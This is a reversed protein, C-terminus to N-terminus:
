DAVTKGVKHFRKAGEEPTTAEIAIYSSRNNSLRSLERYSEEAYPHDKKGKPTKVHIATLFIGNTKLYDAMALPSLGTKATKDDAGLPGADTVLLIIKGDVQDWSLKDVAEKVGALSDEDFAHTSAKCEQLKELLQELKAREHVTAFDSVVLTNYETKPRIEPNSRFAVVAFAIQEKAESNQLRDFINRIIEKTQEIYPKMSITTDVVFVIGTRMGKNPTKTEEQKPLDKKAEPVGPDLCAVELLQTGFKSFQRDLSLVPLLYFDKQSVQGDKELPETAIVPCDQPLKVNKTNFLTVYQEVTDKINETTCLEELDKHKQFFLVPQRGLQDTFVMTIAQPWETAESTKLWGSAETSSVGVRLMEDTRKYVYFSTFTRPRGVEIQAQPDAYLVAGPNSVVRQFVTRKGEKLLPKDALAMCALGLEACFLLSLVLLVLFRQGLRNKSAVTCHKEM